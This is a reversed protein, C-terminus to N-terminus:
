CNTKYIIALCCCTSNTDNPIDLYVADYKNENLWKKIGNAHVPQRRNIDEIIYFGNVALHELSNTLLTLNANLSHHADDIIINIKQNPFDGAINTWMTQISEENLANVHYCHIRDETFLTNLDIDAGFIQADPFLEKWARLSGGPQCPQGHMSFAIAPNQSGIGFELIGLPKLDSFLADYFPTYIVHRRHNKNSGNKDMATCTKTQPWDKLRYFDALLKAIKPEITERANNYFIINEDTTM